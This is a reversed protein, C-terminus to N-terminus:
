RVKVAYTMDVTGDDTVPALYLADPLTEIYPYDFEAWEDGYGNQGCADPFLINGDGDVLNLSYIWDSFVDAGGYEWLLTGDEGYFGVGNEAQYAAVVDPDAALKLTIYTMLPTYCAESVEATGYPTVVPVGPNETRVKALTDSTDLTFTVVGKEPLKLLGNEDYMEPHKLLSYNELSQREGIPLSIEVKGSLRTDENDLRWYETQVLEGPTASGSTVAGSNNPMDVCRGDIWLHDIWWGVNRDTLLQMDEETVGEGTEGYRYVGLPTDVDAILYTYRLFLTKGDYGAEEVTITVGNVTVQALDSQMVEDAMKPSAGTLFSLADFLQWHYAALAVAGLLLAILLALVLVRGRRRAGLVPMTRRYGTRAINERAVIGGLTNCVANHFVEPVEPIIEALQQRRDNKNM